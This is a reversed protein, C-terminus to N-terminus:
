FFSASLLFGIVPMSAERSAKLDQGKRRREKARKRKGQKKQRRGEEKSV